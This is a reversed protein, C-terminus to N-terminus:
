RNTDEPQTSKVEAMMFRAGCYRCDAKSYEKYGFAHPHSAYGVGKRGCKPCPQRRSQLLKRSMQISM